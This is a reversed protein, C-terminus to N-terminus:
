EERLNKFVERFRFYEMIRLGTYRGVIINFIITLLILEPYALLLSQLNPLQVIFVCILAALITEGMGIIAGFWGRESKLSMVSETLTSMILLIFITDSPLSVKLWSGIGFLLLLSISIATLMIAVKPIYLIALGKMSERTIYGTFLVFLLFLLGVKWGLALFSLAIISPTFLGLTTIGM